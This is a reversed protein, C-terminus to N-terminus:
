STNLRQTCHIVANKKKKIRQEGNHHEIYVFIDDDTVM